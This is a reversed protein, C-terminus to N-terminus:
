NGINLSSPSAFNFALKQNATNAMLAEILLNFEDGTNYPGLFYNSTNNHKGLLADVNLSSPYEDNM